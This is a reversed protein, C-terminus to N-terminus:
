VREGALPEAEEWGCAAESVTDYFFLLQCACLPWCHPLPPISSTPAGQRLLVLAPLSASSLVPGGKPLRLTALITMMQRQRLSWLQQRAARWAPAAVPRGWRVAAGSCACAACVSSCSPMVPGRCGGCPPHSPPMGAAAARAAARAAATCPAAAAWRLPQLCACTQPARRAPQPRHCRPWRGATSGQPMHAHPMVSSLCGSFMLCSPLQQCRRAAAESSGKRAQM